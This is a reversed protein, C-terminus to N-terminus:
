PTLVGRRLLETMKDHCRAYNPRLRCAEIYHQFAEDFRGASVLNEALGEEIMFDPRVAVTRAQTFLTVGSQWYPLYRSTAAAFALIVCLAAVAPAGRPIATARVISGLGWALIIFLGICPVYAYRDAM